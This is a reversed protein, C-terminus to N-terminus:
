KFGLGISALGGLGGLGGGKGGGSSGPSSVNLANNQMQGLTAEMMGPIGGVLSPLSGLDMQEATGPSGFQLNTGSKAAQVAPGGPGGGTGGSPIGLGLQQYRNGMAQEAQGGLFSLNGLSFADVSGPATNGFKNTGSGFGGGSM